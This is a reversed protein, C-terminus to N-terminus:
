KIYRENNEGKLIKDIRKNWGTNFGHAWEDECYDLGVEERIPIPKIPCWDPKKYEKIYEEHESANCKGSGDDYAICKWCHEPIDTIIIGKM